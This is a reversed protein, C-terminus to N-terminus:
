SKKRAPLKKKLAAVAQDSRKLALNQHDDILWEVMEGQQFELAQAVAAPFNVYWQESTARKICQIKTAYGMDLLKVLYLIVVFYQINCYSIIIIKPFELKSHVFLWLRSGERCLLSPFRLSAVYPHTFWVM